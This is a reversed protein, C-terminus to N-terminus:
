QALAEGTRNSKLEVRGEGDQHLEGLFTMLTTFSTNSIHLTSRNLAKNKVYALLIRIKLEEMQDATLSELEEQSVADHDALYNEVYLLDDKTVTAKEGLPMRGMVKSALPSTVDGRPPMVVAKRLFSPAPVPEGTSLNVAQGAPYDTSLDSTREWDAAPNATHMRVRGTHGGLATEPAIELPTTDANEGIVEAHTGYQVLHHPMYGQSEAASWIDFMLRADLKPAESLGPFAFPVIVAKLGKKVHTVMIRGHEGTLVTDKYFAVPREGYQNRPAHGLLALIMERIAM